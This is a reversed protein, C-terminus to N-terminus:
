YVNAHGLAQPRSHSSILDWWNLSEAPVTKAQEEVEDMGELICKGTERQRQVGETGIYYAEM